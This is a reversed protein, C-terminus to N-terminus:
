RSPLGGPGPIEAGIVGPRAKRATCALLGPGKADATAPLLNIRPSSLGADTLMRIIQPVGFGMWRHGMQQKYMQRDHEVMDVILVVGGPRLVRAMEIVAAEPHPIHHLVLVCVAADVSADALPLRELDGVVFEVNTSGALRKRAASLMAESQDVAIVRSVCPALVEAANGTGCGLDVVTWEHPILPLLALLTARDGFLEDRVKDWEGAVRGFFTQTDNRREALVAQLRNLDDALEASAGLQERVTTWLARGPADVDDLVLRHMSSTGESRSSLWGAESLTKLHRSITSQPLQMVKALEGVSLEARELVRMLRPRVPEALAALRDFILSDRASKNM